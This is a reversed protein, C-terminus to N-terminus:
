PGDSERELLDIADNIQLLEPGMEDRALDKPSMEDLDLEYHVRAAKLASLVTQMDGSTM